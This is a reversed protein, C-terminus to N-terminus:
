ATLKKAIEIANEANEAFGDANVKEWLGPNHLFPYGGIIVKLGALSSNNKIQHILNAATSVHTPLTVSIALIDAKHEILSQILQKDPMNAGLYYTDWGEMEFFDTVMRIGMEHLEGSISCAVLTKGIRDASFIFSYLGSMILQTAATCYHEHAVNIKNSQWLLGVEYQTPQFIFKYVDKISVKNKVLDDILVKASIRQGNLLFQLYQRAENKLPNEETIFSDQINSTQELAKTAFEFYTDVEHMLDSDFKETLSQRLYQINNILDSKPVNRYELMAAAWLIYNSYMGRHDMKLAEVLFEIHYIADNYCYDKGAQGYRVLLEPHNEFQLETMRSAIETVNKEIHQIISTNM